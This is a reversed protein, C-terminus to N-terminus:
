ARTASLAALTCLEVETRTLVWGSVMLCRGEAFDASVAKLFAQQLAVMECIGTLEIGSFLSLRSSLARVLAAPTQHGVQPLLASGVWAAQTDSVLRLLNSRARAEGAAAMVPWHWAAAGIMPLLAVAAKLYRRKTHSQISM